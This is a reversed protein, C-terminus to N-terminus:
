LFTVRGKLSKHIPQLYYLFKIKRKGKNELDSFCFKLYPLFFLSPQVRATKKKLRAEAASAEEM